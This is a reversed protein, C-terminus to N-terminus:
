KKLRLPGVKELRLVLRPDEGVKLIIINKQVEKTERNFSATILKDGYIRIIVREPSTNLVFYEEQKSAVYRGTFYTICLGICIGLFILYGTKGILQKIIDFISRTGDEIQEQGILKERYTGKGRQTILPWIFEFMTYVGFILLFVWWEKKDGSLYFFVILFLFSLFVRLFARYVPDRVDGRPLLSVFLNILLFLAFLAGVLASSVIFFTKLDLNILELPAGFFRAFGAEYAFAGVYGLM